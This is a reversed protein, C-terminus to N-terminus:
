KIKKPLEFMQVTGVISWTMHLLSSFSTEIGSNKITVVRFCLVRQWTGDRIMYIMPVYYRLSCPGNTMNWWTSICFYWPSMPGYSVNSWPFGLVCLVRPWTGDRTMHYSGGWVVAAQSSSGSGLVLGLGQVLFQKSSHLAPEQCALQETHQCYFWSFSM